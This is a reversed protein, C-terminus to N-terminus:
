DDGKPGRPRDNGRGPKNEYDSWKDREKGYRGGGKGKDPDQGRHLGRDWRERPKKGFEEREEPDMDKHRRKRFGQQGRPGCGRRHRRIRKLLEGFKGTDLDKFRERLRRCFEARKEPDCGCRHGRRGFGRGRGKGCREEGKGEGGGKGQGRHWGQDVQGNRHRMGTHPGHPDRNRNEVGSRGRAGRGEGAYAAGGLALGAALAAAWILSRATRM